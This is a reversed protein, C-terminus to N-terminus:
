TKREAKKLIALAVAASQRAYDPNRHLFVAMVAGDLLIMLQRATEAPNNIGEDVLCGAIWAEMNQKHSKSVLPAPHADNDAFEAAARIFPCGKWTEFAAAAAIREFLALIKDELSGSTKEFVAKMAGSTKRDLDELYAAILRDKSTFHHYLTPKTIGAKECIEKIGVKRIGEQYFLDSAVALIRDRTNQKEM